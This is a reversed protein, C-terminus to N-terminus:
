YPDPGFGDDSGDGGTHVAVLEYRYARTDVIEEVWKYDLAVAPHERRLHEYLLERLDQENEAELRCRCHCLLALMKREGKRERRPAIAGTEKLQVM